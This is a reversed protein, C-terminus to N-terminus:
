LYYIDSTEPDFGVFNLGDESVLIDYEFTLPDILYVENNIANRDKSKLVAMIKGSPLWTLPSRTPALRHTGPWFPNDQPRTLTTKSVNFEYYDSSDHLFYGTIISLKQSDPSWLVEPRKLSYGNEIFNYLEKRGLTDVNVSQLSEAIDNASEFFALTYGNPSLWGEINKSVLCDIDGATADVRFFNCDDSSYNSSYSQIIIYRDSSSWGVIRIQSSKVTESVIGLDKPLQSLNTLDLIKLRNQGNVEQNFTEFYAIKTGQHSLSISRIGYSSDVKSLIIKQELNQPNLQYITNSDTYIVKQPSIIEFLDELYPFNVHQQHRHFLAINQIHSSTDQDFLYRNLSWNRTPNAISQTIPQNINNNVIKTTLFSWTSIIKQYFNIKNQDPHGSICYNRLSVIFGQENYFFITSMRDEDDINPFFPSPGCRSAQFAEEGGVSNEQHKEKDPFDALFSTKNVAGDVNAYGPAYFKSITITADTGLSDHQIVVEEKKKTITADPPYAFQYEVSGIRGKYIEKRMGKQWWLSTWLLFLAAAALVVVIFLIKSFGEQNTLKM